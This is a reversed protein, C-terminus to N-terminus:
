RVRIQHWPQIITTLLATILPHKKIIMKNLLTTLPSGYGTSTHYNNILDPNRPRFIFQSPSILFRTPQPYHTRIGGAASSHLSPTTWPILSCFWKCLIVSHTSLWLSNQGTLAGTSSYSSLHSSGLCYTISLIKCVLDESTYGKSLLCRYKM